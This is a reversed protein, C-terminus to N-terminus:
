KKELPPLAPLVTTVVAVLKGGSSKRTAVVAQCSKGILSDTEFEDTIPAQMIASADKILQKHCDKKASYDRSVVWSREGNTIEFDLVCCTDSKERSAKVTANYVGDPPLDGSKQPVKIKMIHSRDDSNRAQLSRVELRPQGNFSAGPDVQRTSIWPSFHCNDPM